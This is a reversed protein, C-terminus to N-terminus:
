TLLSILNNKVCRLINEDEEWYIKAKQCDLINFGAKQALEKMENLTFM